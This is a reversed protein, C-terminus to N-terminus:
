SRPMYEYPYSPFKPSGIRRRAYFWTYAHRGCLYLRGASLLGSAGRLRAMQSLLRSVFGSSRRLTDPFSLSFRVVGLHAIPLRLTEYYRYSPAM